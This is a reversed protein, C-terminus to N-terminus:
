LHYFVIVNQVVRPDLGLGRSLLLGHPWEALTEKIPVILNTNIDTGAGPLIRYPQILKSM